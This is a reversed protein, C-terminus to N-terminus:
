LGSGSEVPCIKAQAQEFRIEIREAVRQITDCRCAHAPCFITAASATLSSPRTIAAGPRRRAAVTAQADGHRYTPDLSLRRDGVRRGSRLAVLGHTGVM